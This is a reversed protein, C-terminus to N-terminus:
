GWLVVMLKSLILYVLKMVTRLVPLTLTAMGWATFRYVLLAHLGPTSAAIAIKEPLTATGTRSQLQFARQFDRRINHFAGGAAPLPLAVATGRNEAEDFASSLAGRRARFGARDAGAARPPIAHRRAQGRH